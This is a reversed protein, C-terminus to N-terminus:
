RDFGLRFTAKVALIDEGPADFAEFLDQPGV